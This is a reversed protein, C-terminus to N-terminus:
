KGNGTGGQQSAQEVLYKDQIDLFKQAATNDGRYVLAVHITGNANYEELKKKQEPSALVTLTSPMDQKSSTNDSQKKQTASRDNDTGTDATAALLQVYQLDGDNIQQKMDGYDVVDLSIIDGTELKGSLGNAFSKIAVSVAVKKGTLKSLYADAGLQQASLKSKLVYDGPKMEMTSYKGIIDTRDKVVNAPMNYGGVNVTELMDGTIKTNKPVEKSVRTVSVQKATQGILSPGVGFFVLVGFLVCIIGIITRNKTLKM